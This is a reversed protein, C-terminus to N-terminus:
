YQRSITFRMDQAEQDRAKQILLAMQEAAGNEQAYVPLKNNYLETGAYAKVYQKNIEPTQEEFDHKFKELFINENNGIM